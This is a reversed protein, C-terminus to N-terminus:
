ILEKYKLLWPHQLLGDITIRKSPDYEFCKQLLNKVKAGFVEPYIV